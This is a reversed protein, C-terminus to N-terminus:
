RARDAGTVQVIDADDRVEGTTEAQGRHRGDGDGLDRTSERGDL